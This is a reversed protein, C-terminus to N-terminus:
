YGDCVSTREVAASDQGWSGTHFESARVLYYFGAGQAPTENDNWFNWSTARVICDTGLDPWGSRAVEYRIAQLQPPWSLETKDTPNMFGITGSIEDIIGYGSDGPCQNDFGDNIEPADVYVDPDDDACDGCPGEQPCASCDLFGDGDSDDCSSGYQFVGGAESEVGNLEPASVVIEPYSISNTNGASSMAHGFRSQGGPSNFWCQPSSFVGGAWGYYILFRGWGSAYGPEGVAIDDYGDGNMDGLSTLSKGFDSDDQAGDAVWVPNEQIGDSSGPYVYARGRSPHGYSPAGILVDDYGDGNVDGASAVARGLRGFSDDGEIIRQPSFEPGASSGLFVFVAGESGGSDAESNFATAGILVDDYGDNNVDGATSVAFGHDESPPTGANIWTPYGELGQSSGLYVYATGRVNEDPAGVIIDDYGDNNVDGASSVAWGFDTGGQGSWSATTPLGSSSGHFVYAARGGPAGVIVDDYGDGNVDGAAAVDWGYRAALDGTSQWAATSSLGASTGYYVYASGPDLITPWTGIIVDDFGDGNVDGANSVSWGLKEDAFNGETSWIPGEFGTGGRLQPSALCVGALVTLAM